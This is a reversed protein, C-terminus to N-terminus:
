ESEIESLKLRVEGRLGRAYRLVKPLMPESAVNEWGHIAKASVGQQHGMRQASIGMFRRAFALAATVYARQWTQWGVKGCSLEWLQHVVPDEILAMSVAHQGEVVDYSMDATIPFVLEADLRMGFPVPWEQLRSLRWQWTQSAELDYVMGRTSNIKRSLEQQTWGNTIRYGILYRRIRLLQEVDEADLPFQIM